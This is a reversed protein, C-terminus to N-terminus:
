CQREKDIEVGLSRARDRGMPTLVAKPGLVLRSGAAAAEAVLRETVAGREVRMAPPRGDSGVAPRRLAFRLKGARIALRDRPNELRRMLDRVFADLDAQSDITVQQVGDGLVPPSPDAAAAPVAPPAPAPAPAPGPAQQPVAGARRQSSPRHVRAVPPAPVSPVAPAPRVPTAGNRPPQGALVDPLLEALVERVVTGIASVEASTM